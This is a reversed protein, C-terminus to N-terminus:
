RQLNEERGDKVLEKPYENWTRGDFICGAKKKGIRDFCMAKRPGHVMDNLEGASVERIRAKDILEGQVTLMCGAKITTYTPPCYGSYSWPAWEGWQKLFFPVQAEVCQDRISRVWEPHMPRAGPGSEGGVIVWQIVGEHWPRFSINELLPEISVFRMVSPVEAMFALNKDLDSQISCSVGWWINKLRETGHVHLQRAIDLMREPRKTLIQYTHRPTKRIVDFVDGIFTDPVKPHFLDGMSCVFVRRPKRWRLPQELRNNFVQYVNGNWKGDKTTVHAYGEKGMYALRHAMREAYCNKCGATIKTCGVVPNWTQETWEIKSSM